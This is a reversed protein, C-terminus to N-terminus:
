ATLMEKLRVRGDGGYPLCDGDWGAPMQILKNIERADCVFSDRDEDKVCRKAEEEADFEDEAFVVIETEVTVTYVPM